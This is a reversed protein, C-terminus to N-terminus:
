MESLREAAELQLKEEELSTPPDTKLSSKIEEDCCGLLKMWKMRVGTLECHKMHQLYSSFYKGLLQETM